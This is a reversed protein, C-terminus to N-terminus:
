FFFTCSFNVTFVSFLLTVISLDSPSSCWFNHCLLCNLLPSFSLSFAFLLFFSVLFPIKFLVPFPIFSFFQFFFCSEFFYGFHIPVFCFWVSRILFSVHFIIFFIATFVSSRRSCL